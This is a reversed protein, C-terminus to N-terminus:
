STYLVEELFGPEHGRDGNGERGGVLFNAAAASNKGAATPPGVAAENSAPNLQPPPPFAALCRPLSWPLAAAVFGVMSLLTAVPSSPGRCSSAEAVVIVVSCVEVISTINSNISLIRQKRSFIGQKKLFVHVHILKSTDYVHM